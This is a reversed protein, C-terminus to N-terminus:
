KSFPQASGLLFLCRSSVWPSMACQRQGNHTRKGQARPIKKKKLWIEACPPLLEWTAWCPPPPPPPLRFQGVHLHMRPIRRPPDPLTHYTLQDRKLKEAGCSRLFGYIKLRGVSIGLVMAAVDLSPRAQAVRRERALVFGEDKRLFRANLNSRGSSFFM